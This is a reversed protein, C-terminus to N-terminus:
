IPMPSAAPSTMARRWYFITPTPTPRPPGWGSLARALTVSLTMVGNVWYHRYRQHTGKRTTGAGGRWETKGHTTWGPMCLKKQGLDVTHYDILREPAHDWRAAFSIRSQLAELADADGHRYGLANGFLGALLSLRPFRDTTNNHDVIVDGFSMMPADFRLLLIDM